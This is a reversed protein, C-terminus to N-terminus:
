IVFHPLFCRVIRFHNRRAFALAVVTAMLQRELIALLTVEITDFGGTVRPLERCLAVIVQVKLYM